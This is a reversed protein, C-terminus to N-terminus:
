KFIMNESITGNQCRPGFYAPACKCEYANVLDVCSGGNQCPDSSCENGDIIFLIKSFFIYLKPLFCKSTECKKGSYGPICNCTFDNVGDTCTTFQSPTCPNSDCENINVECNVGTYGANCNCKYGFNIDNCNGNLCPNSSCEDGDVIRSDHECTFYSLYYTAKESSYGTDGGRVQRIPLINKDTFNGRDKRWSGDNKECNCIGDAACTESLICSGCDGAFAPSTLVTVSLDDFGLLWDKSTVRYCNLEFTQHCLFSDNKLVNLQSRSIQGYQVGKRYAGFDEINLSGVDITNLGLDHPVRTVTIFEDSFDCQIFNGDDCVKISYSRDDPLSYDLSVASSIVDYFICIKSGPYWTTASCNSNALCHNQCEDETDFRISFIDTFNDIPSVGVFVRDMSCPKPNTTFSLRYFATTTFGQSRLFVCNSSTGTECFKGTYIGTADCECTVKDVGPGILRTNTCNGGNKCPISACYDKMISCTSGVFDPQCECSFKGTFGDGTCTGNNM